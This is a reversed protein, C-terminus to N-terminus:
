VYNRKKCGNKFFLIFSQRTVSVDVRKFLVRLETVMGNMGLASSWIFGAM